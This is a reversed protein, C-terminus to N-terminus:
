ESVRRLIELAETLGEHKGCNWPSKDWDTLSELRSIRNRLHVRAQIIATHETQKVAPEPVVTAGAKVQLPFQKPLPKGTKCAYCRHVNDDCIFLALPRAPCSPCIM